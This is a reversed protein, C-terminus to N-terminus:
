SSSFWAFRLFFSVIKEAGDQQQEQTPQVATILLPRILLLGTRPNKHAFDQTPLKNNIGDDLTEIDVEERSTPLPPQNLLQVFYVIGIKKPQQGAEADEEQATAAAAVLLLTTLALRQWMTEAM